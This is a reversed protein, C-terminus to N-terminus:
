ANKAFKESFKKYKERIDAVIRQRTAVDNIKNLQTNCYYQLYGNALSYWAYWHPGVKSFYEILKDDDLIITHYIPRCETVYFYEKM